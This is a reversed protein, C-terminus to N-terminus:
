ESEKERAKDLKEQAEAKAKKMIEAQKRVEIMESPNLPTFTYRIDRVKDLMVGNEVRKDVVFEPWPMFGALQIKLLVANLEEVLPKLKGELAARDLRKQLDEPSNSM